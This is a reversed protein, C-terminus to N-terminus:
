RSMGRYKMRLQPRAGLRVLRQYAQGYRAEMGNRRSASEASGMRGLKASLGELEREYREIDENM